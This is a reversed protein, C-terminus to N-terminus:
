SEDHVEGRRYLILVAISRGVFLTIGGAAVILPLVHISITTQGQSRCVEWVIMCAAVFVGYSTWAGAATATKQIAEDREDTEVEDPDHKKRFLTHGLGSFGILGFAAPAARIGILPILILFCIVSIIIVALM